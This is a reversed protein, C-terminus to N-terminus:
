NYSVNLNMLSFIKELKDLFLDFTWPTEKPYWQTIAVFSQWAYKIRGNNEDYFDLNENERM